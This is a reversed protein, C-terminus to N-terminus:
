VLVSGGASNSTSRGGFLILDGVAKDTGTADGGRIYLEGGAEDTHRLRRITAASDDDAGIDLIESGYSLTSEAQIASTGNGTLISDAALTTAGTGGSSVALTASLGAATGTTNQNLTPIDGSVIEGRITSSSKNEVLNLLLNTKVDTNKTVKGDSDVVVINTETSTDLNELYVTARFRSILDFIHQGIWKIM